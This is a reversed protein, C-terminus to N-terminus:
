NNEENTSKLVFKKYDTYDKNKLFSKYKKCDDNSREKLWNDFNKWFEDSYVLSADKCVNIASSLLFPCIRYIFEKDSKKSFEFWERGGVSTDFFDGFYIHLAREINSINNYKGAFIIKLRNYQDYNKIRQEPTQKGTIGVKIKKNNSNSEAIYIWGENSMNCGM